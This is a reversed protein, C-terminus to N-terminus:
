EDEGEADECECECIPCLMGCDIYPYDCKYIPEGCEPCEFYEEKYDVHGGYTLEVVYHAVYYWSWKM